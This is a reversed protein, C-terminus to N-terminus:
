LLNLYSSAIYYVNNFGIKQLKESAYRARQGTNCYILIPEDKDIHKLKLEDIQSTPMHIAKPHHGIIWENYSRVDIIHKILGEEIQNKAESSSLRNRGSYAYYALYLFVCICAIFFSMFLISFLTLKM